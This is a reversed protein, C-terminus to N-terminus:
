RSTCPTPVFKSADPERKFHTSVIFPQDLYTPDEVLTTVILWSDGNPENTRHWHETVVANASYPPGNKRLYGPRMGTTVVKLSGSRSAGRGGAIEWVAASNGQWTAQGRVPQPPQALSPQPLDFRFLRTQTGASYEVKLTNPNEWSIRMRGPIRTIAPAGYSRCQEGAAEDKVPDWLNGVREGENNLPISAFDGKPPTMMRWRWDETVQSVWVGTLDVPAQAQPTPPAQGQGGRQQAGAGAPVALWLVAAVAPLWV